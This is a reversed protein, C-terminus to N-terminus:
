YTAHTAIFNPVLIANSIPFNERLTVLYYEDWIEVAIGM